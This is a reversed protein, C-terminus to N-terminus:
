IAINAVALRKKKCTLTKMGEKRSVFKCDSPLEFLNALQPDRTMDISADLFRFKNFTAEAKISWDIPM